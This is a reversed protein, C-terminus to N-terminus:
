SHGGAAILAAIREKIIEVRGEPGKTNGHLFNDFDPHERLASLQESIYTRVDQDAADVEALSEERGDIILLVDELDHSWLPDNRGRGNYAEFKTAIFLAANLYKIQVGSPLTYTVATAAGKEYWQNTYGLLTGDIPMFDVKLEGLRMRCMLDDEGSVSFGQERLREQLQMWHPPGTLHVILDVDDTTRIDGLTVEDTVLLATSCGGVFILQERLDNGLAEAVNELMALLQGQITM